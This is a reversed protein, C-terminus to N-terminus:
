HIPLALWHHALCSVPTLRHVKHQALTWHAIIVLTATRQCHLTRMKLMRHPQAWNLLCKRIPITNIITNNLHNSKALEGSCSHENFSKNKTNLYYVEFIRLLISVYRERLGLSKGFTALLVVLLVIILVPPFLFASLVLFHETTSFLM